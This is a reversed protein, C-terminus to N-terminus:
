PRGHGLVGALAADVRSIAARSPRPCKRPKHPLAPRGVTFPRPRHTPPAAEDLAQPQAWPPSPPPWQTAPHRSSDGGSAGWRCTWPPQWSQSTAKCGQSGCARCGPLSLGALRRSGVHGRRCCPHHPSSRRSPDRAAPPSPMWRPGEAREPPGEGTSQGPGHPQFRAWSISRTRRTCGSSESAGRDQPRMGRTSEQETHEPGGEAPFEPLAM